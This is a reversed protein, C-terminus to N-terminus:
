TIVESRDDQADIKDVVLAFAHFGSSLMGSPRAPANKIVSDSEAASLNQSQVPIGNDAPLDM